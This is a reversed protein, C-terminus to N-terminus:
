RINLLAQINSNEAAIAQTNASYDRQAIILRTLEYALDINSAELSYSAIQGFRGTNPQGYLPL